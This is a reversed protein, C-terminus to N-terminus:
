GRKRAADLFAEHSAFGGRALWSRLRDEDHFWGQGPDRKSATMTDFRDTEPDYARELVLKGRGRTLAEVVDVKGAEGIIRGHGDYSGRVTSGDMTLLVVRSLGDMGADAAMVPLHTKACTWSFYGMEPIRHSYVVTGPLLVAAPDGPV